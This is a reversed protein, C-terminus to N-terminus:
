QRSQQHYRWLVTRSAGSADTPCRRLQRIVVAVCLHRGLVLVVVGQGSTTLPNGLLWSTGSDLIDIEELEVYWDRELKREDSELSGSSQAWKLKFLNM